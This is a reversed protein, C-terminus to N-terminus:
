GTEGGGLARAGAIALGPDRSATWRERPGDPSRQPVARTRVIALTLDDAVTGFSRVEGVLRDGFEGAPLVALGRARAELEATEMMAGAANRAEVMGDSYLLLTDGAHFPLELPEYREHPDIGLPLSPHEAWVTEGDRVVLCPPHGASYLTLHEAEPDIIAFVLTVFTDEPLRESLARGLAPLLAAPEKMPELWHILHSLSTATLAAPMGKGSVDGLVVGMRAGDSFFSYFDGGVLRAPEFRVATDFLPHEPPAVFAARQVRHAVAAEQERLREELEAQRVRGELELRRNYQQKLVWVLQGAVVGHLILYPVIQTRTRGRALSEMFNESAASSALMIVCASVAVALGGTLNYYVAGLLVIVFFLGAFPSGLGGTLAVLAGVTVVDGILLLAVPIRRLSVENLLLLSGSNHAALVILAVAAWPSSQLRPAHLLAVVMEAVFTIWRGGVLASRLLVLLEDDVATGASDTSQHLM